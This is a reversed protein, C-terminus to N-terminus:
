NNKIRHCLKHENNPIDVRQGKLGGSGFRVGDDGLKDTCFKLRIRFKLSAHCAIALLLLVTRM